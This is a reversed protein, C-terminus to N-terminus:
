RYYNTPSYPYATKETVPFNMKKSDISNGKIDFLTVTYQNISLGKIKEKIVESDKLSANDYDIKYILEEISKKPIKRNNYVLTIPLEIDYDLVKLTGINQLLADTDGYNTLFVSLYLEGNRTFTTRKLHEIAADTFLIQQPIIQNAQMLRGKIYEIIDGRDAKEILMMGVDTGRGIYKNIVNIISSVEGTRYFKDLMGNFGALEKEQQKLFYQYSNLQNLLLNYRQKDLINNQAEANNFKPANNTYGYLYFCFEAYIDTDFINSCEKPFAVPDYSYSITVQDIAMEEKSFEYDVWFGFLFALITSTTTVLFTKIDIKINNM